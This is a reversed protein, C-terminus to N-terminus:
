KIVLRQGIRILNPNKIGNDSAIKQWTTKYQTAIKSLTDGKKVTYIIEKKDISVNPIILKQGIRIIDPNSGILTKNAAYIAQWTTKYQIAIKSLTDGSKVIYFVGNKPTEEKKPIIYKEPDEYQGTTLDVLSLHLHIGTSRGTTGTYGILTKENVKQGARVVVSDLHYHLMRKNLRPYRIWAFIGGVSDKGASIVEGDEIAHQPLKKRSTGYDTGNHFKRLGDIPDTRWGFPSTIYHYAGKFIKESIQGM